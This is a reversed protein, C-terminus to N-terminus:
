NGMYLALISPYPSISLDTYVYVAKENTIATLVTALIEKEQGTSALFWKNIFSSSTDTLAIYVRGFAPGVMEIKCYYWQEAADSETAFYMGTIMLVLVMLTIRKAMM